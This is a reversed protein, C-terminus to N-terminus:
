TSHLTFLHDDLACLCGWVCRDAGPDGRGWGVKGSEQGSSIGIDGLTEELELIDLTGDENHDLYWFLDQYLSDM